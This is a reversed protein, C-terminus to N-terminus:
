ELIEALKIFKLFPMAKFGQAKARAVHQPFARDYSDAKEWMEPIAVGHGLYGGIAGSQAKKPMVCDYGLFGALTDDNNHTFESM